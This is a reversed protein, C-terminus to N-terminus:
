LILNDTTYGILKVLTVTGIVLYVKESLLKAYFDLKGKIPARLKAKCIVIIGQLTTM